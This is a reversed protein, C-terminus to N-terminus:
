VSSVINKQFASIVIIIITVDLILPHFELEHYELGKVPMPMGV